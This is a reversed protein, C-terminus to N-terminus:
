YQHNSEKELDILKNETRKMNIFYDKLYSIKGKVSQSYINNKEMEELLNIIEDLRGLDKNKNSKRIVTEIEGLGGKAIGIEGRKTAVVRMQLITQIFGLDLGSVKRQYRQILNEPRMLALMLWFYPFLSLITFISFITCFKFYPMSNTLVLLDLFIASIYIGFIVWIEELEKFLEVMDFSYKDINLQISILTLTIVISLITAHIPIFSTFIDFYKKYTIHEFQIWYSLLLALDFTLFYLLLILCKPNESHLAGFKVRIDKKFCHYIFAVLLLVLIIWIILQISFDSIIERFNLLLPLSYVIGFILLVCFYFSPYFTDTNNTKKTQNGM